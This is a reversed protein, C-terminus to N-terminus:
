PIASYRILRDLIEIVATYAYQTMGNFQRTTLKQNKELGVLWRKATQRSVKAENALGTISIVPYRSLAVMLKPVQSSSVGKTSLLYHYLNQFEQLLELEFQFGKSRTIAVRSLTSVKPRPSSYGRPGYLPPKTNRVLKNSLPAEISLRSRFLLDKNSGAVALCNQILLVFDIAIVPLHQNLAQGRTGLHWCRHIVVREM